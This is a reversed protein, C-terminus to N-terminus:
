RCSDIALKVHAEDVQTLLLQGTRHPQGLRELIVMDYTGPKKKLYGRKNDHRMITLLAETDFDAPISTPSGNKRMLAYHADVEAQSLYGLQWAIQAAVCM